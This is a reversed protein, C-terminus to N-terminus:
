NPFFISFFDSVLFFSGIILITDSESATNQASNLAELSSSFFHKSNFSANESQKKLESLTATRPNSFETFYVNARNPFEMLVGKIDKDSSTGYIIHLDGEEVAPIAELSAKVGDPNHSVDLIIKPHESVVQLRAAYGTNQRLNALGAWRNKGKTKLGLKNLEELIGLVLLYNEKQHKGLLPFDEMSFDLESAYTIPAKKAHAIKAFLGLLHIEMRGVIVPTNEKIIGAKEYAIEVITDGLIQTHELSINTIVSLLPTIVNTADLRGGLGTEIVCINCQEKRFHHLSLAFTVEFFSPSFDLSANRIHDVFEIVSEPAIPTGNVRIRETYDVIHPSTFLGTKYGAETLISALM